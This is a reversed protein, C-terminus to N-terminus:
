CGRAWVAGRGTVYTVLNGDDQMVTWSDGSFGGAHQWKLQGHADWVCLNGDQHHSVNGPETGGTGTSWLQQGGRRVVVNGDSQYTCTYAKNLSVLSEGAKLSQGVRLTDTIAASWVTDNEFWIIAKGDNDLKFVPEDYVPQVWGKDGEKRSYGHQRAWAEGEDYEKKSQRDRKGVESERVPSTWIVAGKSNRIQLAVRGRNYYGEWLFTLYKADSLGSSSNWYTTPQGQKSTAFNANETFQLTTHGDPSTLAQSILLSQGPKLCSIPGSFAPYHVDSSWRHCALNGDDNLSLIADATESNTGTSWIPSDGALLVLNCDYQLLLKTFFSSSTNSAWLSLTTSKHRLAFNGDPQVTATYDGNPSTLYQNATLYQGRRLQSVGSQVGTLQPAPANVLSSDNSWVIGGDAKLVMKGDDQLILVASGGGLRRRTHSSWNTNGDSMVAFNDDARVTVHTSWSNTKAAWIAKSGGEPQNEYLVLNGDGQFVLEFKGNPSILRQGKVLSEGAPLRDTKIVSGDENRRTNTHWVRKGDTMLCFDGDDQMICYSESNGRGGTGPCWQLGGDSTLMELEGDARLKMRQPPIGAVYGQSYLTSDDDTKRIQFQKDQLIAYYKSNASSLKQGRELTEAVYLCGPTDLKPTQRQTSNTCWIQKGDSTKIVVNGDDQVTLAPSDEGKSNSQWEPGWRGRDKGSSVVLNGDAQLTAKASGSYVHSGSAWICKSGEKTDYLVLNGDGQMVFKFRDNTSMICQDKGLSEGADIHNTKPRQKTGTEWIVKGDSTIVANGDDQMTLVSDPGGKSGSAWPPGRRKDDSGDSVVLNGDTGLAAKPRGRYVHSESAWMPRNEGDRKDYLVLNGDGHMVLKFQDNASTLAEDKRLADGASIHNTEERQKTDTHWIQVNDKGFLVVDGDDQVKLVSTEDGKSGTNSSWRAYSGDLVSLNGDTGLELEPNGDWKSSESAWVSRGGEATDHLVLNYDPQMVLRFRGSPSLLAESKKLNSGAQLPQLEEHPMRQKTGTEWIQNGDSLIVANGNDQMIFVSTDDGRGRTGSSWRERNSSVETQVLNGDAQLTIKRTSSGNSNAAWIARGTPQNDYLVINGDGQHVFEFRGNASVLKEDKQLVQNAKLRDRM